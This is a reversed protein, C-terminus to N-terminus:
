QRDAYRREERRRAERLLALVVLSLVFAAAAILLGLEIADTEELVYATVVLAVLWLLPAAVALLVQQLPAIRGLPRFRPVTPEHEGSM